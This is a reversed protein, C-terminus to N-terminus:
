FLQPFISLKLEVLLMEMCFFLVLFSRQQALPLNLYLVNFNKDKKTKLIFTQDQSQETLSFHTSPILFFSSMFSSPYFSLFFLSHFVFLNGLQFSPPGLQNMSYSARPPRIIMEVMQEPMENGGGGGGGGGGQNSM